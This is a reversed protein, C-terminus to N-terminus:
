FFDISISFIDISWLFINHTPLASFFYKLTHMIFV